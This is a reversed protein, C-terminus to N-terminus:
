EGDLQSRQATGGSWRGRGVSRARQPSKLDLVIPEPEDHPAFRIAHPHEGSAAIIPCVPNGQDYLESPEVQWAHAIKHWGGGDPAAGIRSAGCREHRM